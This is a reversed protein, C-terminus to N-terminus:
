NKADRKVPIAPERAEADDAASPQGSAVRMDEFIKQLKDKMGKYKQYEATQQKAQETKGERRYLAALRFHALYDTPDIQIAREFMQKAQETEGMSVLVKGLETCADADNPALEVARTDDAYATKLDASGAAILGLDLEAREDRANQVLAAKFESAAEAQLAPDPSHYLLDGLETHLGPLQPNLKLAERYNAIAAKADDHRALERAMVQHMEATNPASLALTLMARGALDSYLRYSLYLLSSDTPRITLLASVVTAAKDLDGGATYAEILTKGVDLKFQEDPLHPFAAELDARGQELDGVQNEGLGLLGQIRWLDPKLKLAARLQPVAEKYNGRFFLLVGLNGHADINGPDLALVKELEPIALEPRHQALYGQALHSHLDVDKRTDPTTQSRVPAGLVSFFLAPLLAAKAFM